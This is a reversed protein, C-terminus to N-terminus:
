IEQKLTRIDPQNYIEDYDCDWQSDVMEANGQYFSELAEEESNAFVHYTAEGEIQVTIEYKTM